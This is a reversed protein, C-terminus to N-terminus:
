KVFMNVVRNVEDPSYKKYMFDIRYYDSKISKYEREFCLPTNKFLMTQCNKSLVDYKKGDRELHMLKEERSCEKCANARICVASTFLPVDQYVPFVVPLCSKEALSQWNEVNDELTLCVRSAGFEKAMAIAQTNFMYIPTDFSLDIGTKPLVSLGWYNAIEWKRYGQSLLKDIFKQMKSINRCVTPLALRLKNKPVIKWEDGKMEPSIVFIIEAFKEFNLVQLVKPSDTRVIWKAKDYKKCSDFEPLKRVENEILVKAYLERRLENLISVPVFLNDNNEVCLAGLIFATDGCKEFSTRITSLMKEQNEARNFDGEMSVKYGRAEAMIQKKNIIVSVDLSVRPRFEGSKPKYYSYAGKVRSSSALYVNQGKKLFPSQPPLSVEVIEGVKAEFVNKGGVKMSQVSFGFPKEQGDVDIQLGDHRSITYQTKFIIKGKVAQEIKGTILGRHGVFNRDVVNKDRGNFHFKCWPRAFIQKINEAKQNNVGKGDLIERYYDVVAAVYLATKKRGEIKLSTVPMKLVDQELAMDKMSFYHQKGEPGDFEARCPYICRGRNASRGYELASFLCVGSYSYCLAGHIFAETELNPIDAIEKIESLSLERAVVVRSFGAKQLALAGEKNHVAMQTSAHLELEPYVNKVIRAVGIDQVILADIGCRVCMDLNKMLDDLEDEKILTNLAVYVKRGLSHAYGTFEGLNKEDFNTATARASFQKLGLYVADAGYYLAAYGAEIDGAPALLEQKM